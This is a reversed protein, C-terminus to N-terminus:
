KATFCDWSARALKAIVGERVAQDSRSDAVFVAIAMHQGNPLTVLAIDNTAATLGAETGSTGTKDAVVTGKPLLARIRRAGTQTTTMWSLLLKRSSPSLSKGQQLVRLLNVAAAATAWNRYQVQSDSALEKETNMVMIDQVGIRRLYENVEKPSLLGLLADSAGGDSEVIAARLLARLPLTIGQPNKDRIPSHVKSPPLDAANLKVKQDLRLSGKDVRELVAMVIPVKYVSQMPFHGDANMEAHAGTELVVVAAGVSGITPSAIQFWRSM